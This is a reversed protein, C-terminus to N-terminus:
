RGELFAFIGDLAPITPAGMDARLGLPDIIVADMGVGRAGRHDINVFDGVYLVSEAPLGSKELALHFIEPGPKECGVVHSDIIFGFHEEIGFRQIQDLVRGDSNSIVGLSYGAQGLRALVEKVGPVWASWLNEAVHEKLLQKTFARWTFDRIDGSCRLFKKAQGFYTEWWDDGLFGDEESLRRDLEATAQHVATMWEDAGTGIGCSRHFVGAIRKSDPFVLTGGLDFFVGRIVPKPSIPEM